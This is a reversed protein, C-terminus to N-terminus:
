DKKDGLQKKIEQGKEMAKKREEEKMSLMKASGTAERTLNTLKKGVDSNGKKPPAMTTSYYGGRPGLKGEREMSYAMAVAQDRPKKEMTVLHGIKASVRRMAEPSMKRRDGTDPKSVNKADEPAPM